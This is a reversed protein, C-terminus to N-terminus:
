KQSLTNWVQERHTRHRKSPSLRSPTQGVARHGPVGVRPRGGSSRAGISRAAATAGPATLTASARSGRTKTLTARATVSSTDCNLIASSTHLLTLWPTEITVYM